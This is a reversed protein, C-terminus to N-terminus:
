HARAKIDELPEGNIFYRERGNPMVMAPGDERHLKGHRFWSLCGDAEEFAPGGERHPQGNYYWYRGGDPAIIAPGDERHRLGDRFFMTSGDPGTFCGTWKHKKADADFRMKRRHEEASIENRRQWELFELRREQDDDASM